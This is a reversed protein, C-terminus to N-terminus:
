AKVMAHLADRLQGADVRPLLAGFTNDAIREGGFGLMTSTARDVLQESRAEFERQSNGGSALTLIGLRVVGELQYKARCREDRLMSLPVERLRRVLGKSTAAQRRMLRKAM